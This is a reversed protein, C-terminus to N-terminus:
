RRTTGQGPLLVNAEGFFATTGREGIRAEATQLWAM